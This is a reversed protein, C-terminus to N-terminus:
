IRTNDLTSLNSKLNPYYNYSKYESFDTSNDYDYAVTAGCSALVFTIVLTLLYKM